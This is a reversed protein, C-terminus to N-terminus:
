AKMLEQEVRVWKEGINVSTLQDQTAIIEAGEALRLTNQDYALQGGAAKYLADLMSKVKGRTKSLSEFSQPMCLEPHPTDLCIAPVLDLRIPETEDVLALLADVM